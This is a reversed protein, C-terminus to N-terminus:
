ERSKELFFYWHMSHPVQPDAPVNPRMKRSSVERGGSRSLRKSDIGGRSELLPIKQSVMSTPTRCGSPYLRATTKEQSAWWTVPSCRSKGNVLALVARIRGPPQVEISKAHNHPHGSPALGFADGGRSGLLNLLVLLHRPRTLPTPWVLLLLLLLPM